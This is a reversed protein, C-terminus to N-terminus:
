PLNELPLYVCVRSCLVLSVVPGLFPCLTGLRTFLKHFRESAAPLAAARKSKFSIGSPVLTIRYSSRRAPVSPVASRIGNLRQLHLALPRRQLTGLEM